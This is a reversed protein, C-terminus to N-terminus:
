PRDDAHTLRRALRRLVARATPRDADEHGERHALRRAMRSRRWGGLVRGRLTHLSPETRRARACTEALRPEGISELWRCLTPPHGSRFPEEILHWFWVAASAASMQDLLTDPDAVEVELLHVSDVAHLRFAESGPAVHDGDSRRMASVMAARLAAPDSDSEACALAVREAAVPDRLVEAIWRSFDDLRREMAHPARLAPQLVHLLLSSADAQEVMDALSRLDVASAPTVRIAHAVDLLRYTPAASM